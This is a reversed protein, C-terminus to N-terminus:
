SAGYVSRMLNIDESDGVVHLVLLGEPELSDMLLRADEKTFEGRLLLAKDAKQVLRYYPLMEKLSVSFPEHNIQIATLEENELIRDLAFRSNTHLHMISYEFEGAMEVDLPFIFKSYLEPSLVAIADEQLRVLTGPAWLCFVSDYYGGHFPRINALVEKSVAVFVQALRKLLERSKDPEDIMDLVTQEHGRLKVALDLPGEITGYSVPYKEGARGSLSKAFSIYKRYWASSQYNDAAEWCGKWTLERDVPLVNGPMLRLECGLSACLWPLFQAPCAGRIIDDNISNERVLLEEIDDFFDEPVVMEPTLFDSTKEWGASIKYESLPFWSKFTFGLLPSEANERNWFQKYREFKDNM